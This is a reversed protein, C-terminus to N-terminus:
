NQSIVGRKLESQCEAVFEALISTKAQFTWKAWKLPKQDDEASALWNTYIMDNQEIWAAEVEAVQKIDLGFEHVRHWRFFSRLAFIFLAIDMSEKYDYELQKCYTLLAAKVSPASEFAHLVDSIGRSAAEM